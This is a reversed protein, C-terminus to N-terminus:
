ENREETQSNDTNNNINEATEEPLQEPQIGLKKNRRRELFLRWQNKILIGLAGFLITNLVAFIQGIRISLAIGFDVKPKDAAYDFDTFIDCDDVHFREVGLPALASLAANIYGYTMVTAYPDTGGAIFHLKFRDIRMKRFKGLGQMVKKVLAFIEEKTFSLKLKKKPKGDSPKKQKKPKKPKKEKPPEEQANPDKPPRPFVKFLVGIVKASVTLEGAEFAVDAGIPILM